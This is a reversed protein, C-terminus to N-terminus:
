RGDLLSDYATRLGKAPVLHCYEWYQALDGPALAPAGQLSCVAVSYRLSQCCAATHLDVTLSCADAADQAPLKHFYVSSSHQVKVLPRQQQKLQQGPAAGDDEPPCPVQVELGFLRLVM